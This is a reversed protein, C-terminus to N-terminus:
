SASAVSGSTGASPSVHLRDPSVHLKTTFTLTAVPTTLQVQPPNSVQAAFTVTVSSPVGAGSKLSVLVSAISHVFVAGTIVEASGGPVAVSPSSYVCTMVHVSASPSPSETPLPAPSVHAPTTVSLPSPVPVYVQVGPSVWPPAGQSTCTVQPSVWSVSVWVAATATESSLRGGEIVM